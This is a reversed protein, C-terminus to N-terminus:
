KLFWQVRYKKKREGDANDSGGRLTIKAVDALRLINKDVKRLSLHNLTKQDMSGQVNDFAAKIKQEVESFTLGYQYLHDLSIEIMYGNNEDRFESMPQWTGPLLNTSDTSVEVLEFDGIASIPLILGNRMMVNLAMLDQPRASAPAHKLLSQIEEKAFQEDQKIKRVLEQNLKFRIEKTRNESLEPILPEIAKVLRVEVKPYQLLNIVKESLTKKSDKLQWKEHLTIEFLMEASYHRSESVAATPAVGIKTEVTSVESLGLIRSQMNQHILRQERRTTELPFTARVLIPKADSTFFEDSDVFFSSVVVFGVLATLGISFRKLRGQRNASQHGNRSRILTLFFEGCVWYVAILLLGPVLFIVRKGSFYAALAMLNFFILMKVFYSLDFKGSVRDLSGFHLISLISSAFLIDFYTPPYEVPILRSIYFSILPGLLIGGLLVSGAAYGWYESRKLEVSAM